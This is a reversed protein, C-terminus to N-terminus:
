FRRCSLWCLFMKIEGYHAEPSQKSGHFLVTLFCKRGTIRYIKKIVSLLLPRVMSLPDLFNTVWGEPETDVSNTSIRNFCIHKHNISTTSTLHSFKSRM